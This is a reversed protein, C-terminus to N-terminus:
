FMNFFIGRKKNDNTEDEPDHLDHHSQKVEIYFETDDYPEITESHRHAIRSPGASENVTCYMGESSIRQPLPQTRQSPPQPKQLPHNLRTDSVNEQIFQSRSQIQMARIHEPINFDDELPRRPIVKAINSSDEAYTPFFGRYKGPVPPINDKNKYLFKWKDKLFSKTSSSVLNSFDKEPSKSFAGKGIHIRNKCKMYVAVVVIFFGFLGFGIAIHVSSSVGKAHDEAQKLELPAFNMKSETEIPCPESICPGFQLSDDLCLRDSRFTPNNCIRQRSMRGVGCTSSCPSWSSWLSWGENVLNSIESCGKAECKRVEYFKGDKCNANDVICDASRSQDKFNDSCTSLCPSWESWTPICIETSNTKSLYYLHFTIKDRCLFQHFNIDNSWFRQIWSEKYLWLISCGCTFVNDFINLSQLMPLSFVISEPFEQLNSHRLELENIDPLMDFFSKDLYTLKTNSLNISKLHKSDFSGSGYDKIPNNSLDLKYLLQIRRVANPVANLFSNKIILERLSPFIKFADDQIIYIPNNDIFVGLLYSSTGGDFLSRIEQIGNGSLKLFAVGRPTAVLDLVEGMPNNLCELFENKRICQSWVDTQFSINVFVFLFVAKIIAKNM